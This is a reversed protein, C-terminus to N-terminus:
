KLGLRSTLEEILEADKKFVRDYPEWDRSSGWRSEAKIKFKYILPSVQSDATIGVVGCHDLFKDDKLHQNCAINESTVLKM